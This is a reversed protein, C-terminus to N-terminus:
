VPRPATRAHRVLLSAGLLLLVVGAGAAAGVCADGWDFGLRRVHVVVPAAIPASAVSIGRHGARDDPRVHGVSPATGAILGGPGRVGARDDPRVGVNAVPAAAPSTPGRTGARDDPRVHGSAPVAGHASVALAAAGLVTATVARVAKMTHTKM